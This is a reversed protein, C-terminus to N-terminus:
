EEEKQDAPAPNNEYLLYKLFDPIRKEWAAENHVAGPIVNASVDAGRDALRKAVNFMGVLARRKPDIEGTGMDMYIRTPAALPTNRILDHLGSPSLWLCPSLVAARSFVDNYAVAAYLSMLGGMSSGAILTHERDPLTRYARDIEPKLEKTFWDMTVKGLGQVNGLPRPASYDFPSYEYIRRFGEPNCEVAVVILDPKKRDLYQKMGWSRGYTAHSNYFVNHGDFMYLVPYRKGSEQYDRPLYVYLRRPKKTPLAPIQIRSVQIM